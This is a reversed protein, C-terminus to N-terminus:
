VEVTQPLRPWNSELQRAPVTVLGGERIEIIRNALKATSPEHTILICTKDKILHALATRVADETKEDLGTMPEDMIVIPAAKIM